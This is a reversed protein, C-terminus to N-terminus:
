CGDPRAYVTVRAGQLQRTGCEEFYHDLVWRRTIERATQDVPRGAPDRLAVVRESALLRTRIESATAEPDRAAAIRPHPRPPQPLRERLRRRGVLASTGIRAEGAEPGAVSLM